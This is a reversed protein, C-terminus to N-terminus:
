RNRWRERDREKITAWEGYGGTEQLFRELQRELTEVRNTARALEDWDSRRLRAHIYLLPLGALFAGLAFVLAWYVIGWFLDSGSSGAMGGGGAVTLLTFANSAGMHVVGQEADCSQEVMHCTGRALGDGLLGLWYSVIRGYGCCCEGVFVLLREEGPDFAARDPEAVADELRIEPPLLLLDGPREDIRLEDVDRRAVGGSFRENRGLNGEPEEVAV